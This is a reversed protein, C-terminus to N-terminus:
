YIDRIRTKKKLCFVAYSIHVQRVLECRSDRVPRPKGILGAFCNVPVLLTRAEHSCTEEGFQTRMDALPPRMHIWRSMEYLPKAGYRICPRFTRESLQGFTAPRVFTPASDMCMVSIM